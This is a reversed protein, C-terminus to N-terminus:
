LMLEEPRQQMHVLQIKGRYAKQTVGHSISSLFFNWLDLILSSSSRACTLREYRRLKRMQLIFILNNYSNFIVLMTRFM